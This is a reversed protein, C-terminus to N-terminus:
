DKLRGLGYMVEMFTKAKFKKITQQRLRYLSSKQRNLYDMVEFFNHGNACLTLFLFENRTLRYHKVSISNEYFHLFENLFNTMM